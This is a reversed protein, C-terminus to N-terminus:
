KEKDVSGIQYLAGTPAAPASRPWSNWVSVGVLCALGGSVAINSDLVFKGLILVVAAVIGVALPGYGRRRKARFGLAGLALVLSAATLPLLYATQM